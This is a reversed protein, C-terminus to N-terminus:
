AARKKRIREVETRRVVYMAGLRHVTKFGGSKMMRHATQRTIGLAEGVQTPNMWDLLEPIIQEENM